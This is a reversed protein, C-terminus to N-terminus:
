PVIGGTVCTSGACVQGFTAFGEQTLRVQGGDASRPGLTAMGAPGPSVPAAGADSPAAKVCVERVCVYGPVCKGDSSCPRHELNGTDLLLSCASACLLLGAAIAIRSTMRLEMAM